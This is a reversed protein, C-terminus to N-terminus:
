NPTAYMQVTIAVAGTVSVIRARTYVYLDQLTFVQKDSGGGAAGIAVAAVSRALNAQGDIRVYGITFWNALDISGEFQLTATGAGTNIVIAQVNGNFGNTPIQNGPGVATAASQLQTLLAQQAGAQITNGVVGNGAANVLRVPLGNIGDETVLKQTVETEVAM